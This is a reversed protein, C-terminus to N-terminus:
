KVLLLTIIVLTHYLIYPEINELRKFIVADITIGCKTLKQQQDNDFFIEVWSFRAM